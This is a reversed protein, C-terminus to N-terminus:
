ILEDAVGRFDRVRPLATHILRELFDWMKQGRLTVQLGVVEGQRLKFAAISLRSRRLVPAQGTIQRLEERADQIYADNDKYRGVGMSVVIKELSPVRLENTVALEERLAPRITTVYEERLM